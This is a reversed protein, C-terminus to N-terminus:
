GREHRLCLVANLGGFAFSNNIATRVTVRRAENPVYDLDCAPDPGQYNATPPVLGTHMAQVTAILELGASAGLAHGHMSKTSSIPLRKAHAGFVRKLAATETADNVLTGSGHANVYDIEEPRVGADELAQTMALVPGDETPHVMDNADASGGYGILEALIPAGRALAREREELVVIGAAEGLVLGSRGASFPRCGDRAVVRLAEWARICGFTLCAETGGAIAADIRGSRIMWMAEGVANNASSCASAVAMVPGTVGFQIAAHSAAANTILRPVTFPHLRDKRESYLRFFSDDLTSMGGITTGIVVATRRALDPALPLKSRAVAERCAVIAIQANRDLMRLDNETFHDAARYDWAHALLREAQDAANEPVHMRFGHRGATLERWFPEVGVGLASVCGMGTLVVRRRSGTNASGSM